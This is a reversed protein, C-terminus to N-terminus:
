LRLRVYSIHPQKQRHSWGNIPIDTIGMRLLHCQRCLPIEHTDSTKMFHKGVRHFRIEALAEFDRLIHSATVTQPEICLYAQRNNGTQLPPM